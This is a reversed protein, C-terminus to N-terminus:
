HKLKGFVDKWFAIADFPQEEVILNASSRRWACDFFLVWKRYLWCSIGARRNQYTPPSRRAPVWLAALQALGGGQKKMFPNLWFMWWLPATQKGPFYLDRDSNQCTWRKVEIMFQMHRIEVITGAIQAALIFNAAPSERM